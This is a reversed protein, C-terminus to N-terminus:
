FYSDAQVDKGKATEHNWKIVGTKYKVIRTSTKM